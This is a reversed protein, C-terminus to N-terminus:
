SRGEVRGARAASIRRGRRRTTAASPRVAALRRALARLEVGLRAPRVIRFEFPLRALERAFWALDDAQSSLRVGGEVSELVGIAEFLERRATELDTALLVEVAHARPLTAVSHALYGRADFDAPREFREPRESVSEIRDLRFSRLGKRLLCHGVAYWGRGRYVIGYPDFDRESARGDATRYRLRVRRRQRAAGSLAALCGPDSRREPRRLDLTVSEGIALVRGRLADPLVRELKAQASEVAAESAELGLRGAALLGLSLAVAEEANFMMPPLKFGAVLLYAGHRGRETTIPVGLDELRTVYRRLTRADVGLRRALEAGSMRGHTQLLELLALVRTTPRSM